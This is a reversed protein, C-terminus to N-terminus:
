LVIQERVLQVERQFHLALNPGGCDPCFLAIAYVGYSRRCIGCELDRLLDERIALPKPRHSRKLDMRVSIFGGSPQQSNFDQPMPVSLIMKDRTGGVKHRELRPFRLDDM